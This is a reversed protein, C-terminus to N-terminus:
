GGLNNKNLNLDTKKRAKISVLWEDIDKEDPNFDYPSM